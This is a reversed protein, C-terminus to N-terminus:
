ANFKTGHSRIKMLIDVDELRVLESNNHIRHGACVNNFCGHFIDVIETICLHKGHVFNQFLLTHYHSEVYNVPDFYGNVLGHM